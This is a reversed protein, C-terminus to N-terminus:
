NCHSINLIELLKLFVTLNILFNGILHLFFIANFNLSSHFFINLIGLISFFIIRSAGRAFPLCFSMLFMKKRYIYIKININWTNIKQDRCRTTLSLPQPWLFIVTLLLPRIKSVIISFLVQTHSPPYSPHSSTSQGRRWRHSPIRCHSIIKTITTTIRYARVTRSQALRPILYRICELSTCKVRSPREFQRGRCQFLVLVNM